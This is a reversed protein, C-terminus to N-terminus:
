IRAIGWAIWSFDAGSAHTVTFQNTTGALTSVWSAGDASDSVIAGWVTQLQPVTVTTTVGSGDVVGAAMETKEGVAKLLEPTKFVTYAM